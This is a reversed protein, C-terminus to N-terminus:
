RTIRITDPDVVNCVAEVRFRFDTGPVALGPADEWEFSQNSQSCSLDRTFDVQENVDLPKGNVFFHDGHGPENSFIKYDEGYVEVMQERTYTNWPDNITSTMFFETYDGLDIPGRRSSRLWGPSSNDRFTIPASSTWTYTALREPRNTNPRNVWLEFEKNLYGSGFTPIFRVSSIKTSGVVATKVTYDAKSSGLFAGFAVDHSGSVTANITVGNQSRERSFKKIKIDKKVDFGKSELNAKFVRIADRRNPEHIAFLAASDISSQLNQKKRTASSYDTALGVAALIPLMSLAVLISMNGSENKLFRSLM